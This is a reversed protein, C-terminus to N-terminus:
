SYYLSPLSHPEFIRQLMKRNKGARLMLELFFLLVDNIYSILRGSVINKNAREVKWGRM